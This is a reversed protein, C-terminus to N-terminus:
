SLMYVHMCVHVPLIGEPVCECARARGGCVWWAQGGLDAILRAGHASGGLLDPQRCPLGELHRPGWGLGQGRGGVQRKGKGGPWM